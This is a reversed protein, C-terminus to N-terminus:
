TPGRNKQLLFRRCFVRCLHCGSELFISGRHLGGYKGCRSAGVFSKACIAELSLFYAEVLYAARKKQLSLAELLQMRATAAAVASGATAITGDSCCCRKWSNCDHRRQLSLAELFQLRATAAAVASGAIATTSGCCRCRRWFPVRTRSIRLERPFNGALGEGSGRSAM